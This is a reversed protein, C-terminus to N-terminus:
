LRDHLNFPFPYSRIVLRSIEVLIERKIELVIYDAVM